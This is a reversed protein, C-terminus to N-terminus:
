PGCRRIIGPSPWTLYRTIAGTTLWCMIHGTAGNMGYNNSYYLKNQAGLATTEPERVVAIVKGAHGVACDIIDGPSVIDYRGTVSGPTSVTDWRMIGADASAPSITTINVPLAIAASLCLGFLFGALRPIQIKKSFIRATM